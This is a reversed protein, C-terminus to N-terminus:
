LIELAKARDADAEFQALGGERHVDDVDLFAGRGLGGALELLALDDLADVALHELVISGRTM